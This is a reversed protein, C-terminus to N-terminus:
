IGPRAVHKPKQRSQAAAMTQVVLLVFCFIFWVLNITLMAVLNEKWNMEKKPDIGSIRYFLNEVPSLFDLLSKEGAYVRAM